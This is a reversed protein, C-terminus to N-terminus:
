NLIDVLSVLNEKAQMLTWPFPLSEGEAIRSYKNMTYEKTERDYKRKQPSVNLLRVPTKSEEKKRLASQKDPSFCAM